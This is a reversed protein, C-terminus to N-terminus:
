RREIARLRLEHDTLQSLNADLKSNVTASLVKIDINQQSVTTQLADAQSIIRAGFFGAVPLSAIMCVRAIFYFLENRAIKPVTEDLNNV